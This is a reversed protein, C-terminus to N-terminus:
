ARDLARRWREAEREADEPRFPNAPVVGWIPRPWAADTAQRAIVHVHLQEVVNGLAAV